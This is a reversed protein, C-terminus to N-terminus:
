AYGIFLNYQSESVQEYWFWVSTFGEINKYRNLRGAIDSEIGSRNANVSIPNDWCDVASSDLSLGISTAYSQAYGLYYSIDVSPEKKAETPEPKSVKTPKETPTEVPTTPKPKETKTKSTSPVKDTETKPPQTNDSVYKDTNEPKTTQAKLTPEANTNDTSSVQTTNQVNTSTQSEAVSSTSNTTNTAESKSESSSSVTTEVVTSSTQSQLEKSCGFLNLAITLVLGMVLMKKLM